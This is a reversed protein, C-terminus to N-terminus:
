PKKWAGRNGSDVDDVVTIWGEPKTVLAGGALIAGPKMERYVRDELAHQLDDNRFPRYMWVIDYNNYGHPYTLADGTWVPGRGKQRAVTALTESYEIGSTSLGFLERALESKTGIGSGVELFAVGDALKMVEIMLAVFDAQQYPMWGLHQSDAGQLNFAFEDEETELLLRQVAAAYGNRIPHTEPIMLRVM